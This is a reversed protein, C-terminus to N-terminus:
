SKLVLLPLVQSLQSEYLLSVAQEVEAAKKFTGCQGQAPNCLHSNLPLERLKGLCSQCILLPLTAYM